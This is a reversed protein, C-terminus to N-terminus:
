PAPLTIRRPESLARLLSSRRLSPGQIKTGRLRIADAAVQDPYKGLAATLRRLEGDSLWRHRAEEHFKEIGETPNNTRLGWRVALSFM